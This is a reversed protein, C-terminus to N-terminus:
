LSACNTPAFSLKNDGLDYVIHFNQQQFNGLVSFGSGSGSSSFALCVLEQEDDAAGAGSIFMFSKEPPLVYEAGGAFHFIITPYHIAAPLKSNSNYCLDFGTTASANVPEASINSRVAELFPKYGPEALSTFTSGSDIFLGGSGDSQIGFTGKPISVPEGAVSIGDLGLYYFTQFMNNQILPTVSFGRGVTASRGLFLPSTQSANYISGFCYSFINGISPGIQSVLSLPGRGLGIIGSSNLFDGYQSRGCGFTLNPFSTWKPSGAVTGLSFTEEALVGSTAGSGYSYIYECNNLSNCGGNITLDLCFHNSCSVNNYSSSQFPDFMPDNQPKCSLFSFTDCPECQTWMLDSGTDLIFHLNLPVPSGIAMQMFYEGEVYNVPSYNYSEGNQFNYHLQLRSLRSHSREVAGRLREVMTLNQAELLPSIPSDRHILDVRIIPTRSRILPLHRRNPRQKAPACSAGHFSLSYSAVVAIIIMFGSIGHRAM